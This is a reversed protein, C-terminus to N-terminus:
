CKKKEEKQKKIFDKRIKRLETMKETAYSFAQPKMDIHMLIFERAALRNKKGVERLMWGVGKQVYVDDDYVLKEALRLTLEIKNKKILSYTAVIALRREWPNKSVAMEKIESSLGINKVLIEGFIHTALDDIHEWTKFKSIRNKLFKWTELNWDKKYQHLIHIAVSKEDHINSNWLEDFLNYINYINWNKYGKAIEKSEPTSVGLVEFPTALIRKRFPAKEPNAKESLKKRIQEVENM